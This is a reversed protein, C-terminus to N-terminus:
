TVATVLAAVTSADEPFSAVGIRASSGAAALDGAIRRAVAAAGARGTAPLLLVIREETEWVGDSARLRAVLEERVSATRERPTSRAIAALAVPGGYRQARYVELQLVAELSTTVPSGSAHVGTWRAAEDAARGRYHTGGCDHCTIAGFRARGPEVHEGCLACGYPEAAPRGAPVGVRRRENTGAGGNVKDDFM